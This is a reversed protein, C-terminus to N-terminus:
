LENKIIIKAEKENKDWGWLSGRRSHNTCRMTGLSASPKPTRNDDEVGREM